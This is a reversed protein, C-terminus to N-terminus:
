VVCDSRANRTVCGQSLCVLLLGTPGIVHSRLSRSVLDSMYITGQIVDAMFGLRAIKDILIINGNPDPIVSQLTAINLDHSIVVICIFPVRQYTIIATFKSHLSLKLMGLDVTNRYLCPLSEVGV